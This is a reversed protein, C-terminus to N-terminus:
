RSLCAQRTVVTQHFHLLRAEEAFCPNLTVLAFLASFCVGFNRITWEVIVADREFLGNLDNMEHNLTDADSRNL